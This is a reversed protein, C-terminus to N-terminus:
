AEPAPGPLRVVTDIARTADRHALAFECMRYFDETSLDGKARNAVWTVWQVNGALYGQGPEIQDLSPCLPHKREIVMEYGLLACLGQQAKFLKYLYMADVDPQPLGYKRTRGRINTLRQRVMSMLLRDKRPVCTLKGTGRYNKHRRRFEQQYARNCAKCPSYRSTDRSFNAKQNRPRPFENLPKTAGCKCCTKTLCRVTIETM